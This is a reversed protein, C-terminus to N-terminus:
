HVEKVLRVSFGNYRHNTNQPDVGGLGNKFYLLFADGSGNHTSSWYRGGSAGYSPSVLGASPLFTAGAPEIITEWDSLSITNSAYFVRPINVSDLQYVCNCWSDPLIILGDVGNVKAKAYRIGSVTNRTNLLYVWEAKTPTRWTGAPDTTATRPNYIANHVGWDADAYSGTLDYTYSTGDTPGYGYGDASSYGAHDLVYPMYHANGNNWGSTGWAFLDITDSQTDRGNKTTNGRADGVFLYQQRAFQWTSNNAVYRLNGPAFAMTTNAAVSVVPDLPGFATANINSTYIKNRELTADLSTKVFVDGDTNIVRVAMKGHSIPPLFVYVDAGSAIDIYDNTGDSLKVSVCKSGSSQHVVNNGDFSFKGNLYDTSSNVLVESIRTNGAGAGATLHLKLVAGLNRMQFHLAATGAPVSTFGAMYTCGDLPHRNSAFKQVSSMDVTVTSRGFESPISTTYAPALTSPYLAWYADESGGNAPMAYVTGEFLATTYNDKVGNVTLSTGNISMADGFSWKVNNGDTIDLYAKQTGTNQPLGANVYINREVGPIRALAEEDFDERKCSTVMVTLAIVAVVCSITRFYQKM